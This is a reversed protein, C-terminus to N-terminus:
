RVRNGLVQRLTKKAHGASTGKLTFKMKRGAHIVVQDPSSGSDDDIRGAIVRVKSIQSLPIVFNNPSERLIDEIPMTNYRELIAKNAGLMAGWQKFFGKGEAKALEKGMQSQANLMASTLEAFVLRESTVVVNYNESKFLGKQLGLCGM